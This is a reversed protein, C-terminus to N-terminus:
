QAQVKKVNENIRNITKYISSNKNKGIGRTYKGSGKKIADFIMAVYKKHETAQDKPSDMKPINSLVDFIASSFEKEKSAVGIKVLAKSIDFNPNVSYTRNMSEETVRDGAQAEPESNTETEPEKVEVHDVDITTNEETTTIIADPFINKHLFAKVMHEDYDKMDDINNLTRLIYDWCGEVFSQSTVDKEMEKNTWNLLDEASKFSRFLIEHEEDIYDPREAVIDSSSSEVMTNLGSGNQPDGTNVELSEVESTGADVSDNTETSTEQVPDASETATSKAVIVEGHGTDIPGKNVVDEQNVSKTETAVNATQEQYSKYIEPWETQAIVKLRKQVEALGLKNAIAEPSSKVMLCLKAWKEIGKEKAQQIYKVITEDSFPEASEVAKGGIPKQLSIEKILSLFDIGQMDETSISLIKHLWENVIEEPYDRGEFFAKKANFAAENQSNKVLSRYATAFNTFAKSEDTLVEETPKQTEEKNEAELKVPLPAVEKFWNNFEKENWNHTKKGEKPIYMGAKLLNFYEHYLKEVDEKAEVRNKLEDKLDKTTFLQGVPDGDEDKDTIEIIPATKFAENGSLDETEEIKKGTIDFVPVQKEFETNPKLDDNSHAVTKPLDSTLDVAQLVESTLEVKSYMINFLSNMAQKCLESLEPGASQAISEFFRFSTVIDEPKSLMARDLINDAKTDQLTKIVEANKYALNSKTM